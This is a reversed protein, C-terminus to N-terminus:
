CAKCTLASTLYSVRLHEAIRRNSWGIALLDWSDRERPTLTQVQLQVIPDCIPPPETAEIAQEGAALKRVTTRLQRSSRDKGLCGDAGSALV